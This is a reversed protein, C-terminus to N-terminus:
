FYSKLAKFLNIHLSVCRPRNEIKGDNEPESTILEGESLENSHSSIGCLNVASVENVKLFCDSNYRCNELNNLGALKIFNKSFNCFWFGCSFSTLKADSETASNCLRVGVKILFM